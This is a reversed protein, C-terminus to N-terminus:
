ADSLRRVIAGYAERVQEWRFNREFSDIAQASLRQRLAPDEALARLALTLSVVSDREVLMGGGEFLAEPIGGSRSAVVPLGAAMAELPALPFPDQWVSPLCFVDAQQFLKVLEKGACYPHFSLNSPASRALEEVYPDSASNGFGVGGVVLGEVAVGERQLQRLAEALLHPGKERVLRSAFLVKIAAGPTASRQRAAEFLEADAGNYLIERLVPKALYAQSAEALYRSVYVVCDIDLDAMIRRSATSLHENHMHLVAMAGMRHVTWGIAAAM